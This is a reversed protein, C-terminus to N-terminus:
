AEARPQDGNWVEPDFLRSVYAPAHGEAVHADLVALIAEAIRPDGSAEAVRAYYAVDKRANAISFRAQDYDGDVAPAFTKEFTGSRAAGASMVDRLAALDLDHGRAAAFAEALLVTTGQTVFNNLLKALHGTGPAGFRRVVRSWCGVLAEVRPWDAERCGVLSALDGSEAQPPGGTVPADVFVIDRAELMAALHRTLAPDSTTVDVVLVGPALSGDVESMVARVADADSVCLVLADRGEAVGAMTAAHSAGAGVLRERSATSRGGGVTVAHGAKLANLALGTGMMGTGIMGIRM